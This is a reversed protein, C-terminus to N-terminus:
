DDWNVTCDLHSWVRHMGDLGDSLMLEIPIQRLVRNRTRLWFAPMNPNRCFVVHLAEQIGLLHKAREIVAEDQPFPQGRKFRTLERPRTGEPLGLLALKDEDALRWDELIDMVLLALNTRETENLEVNM